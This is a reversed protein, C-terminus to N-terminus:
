KDGIKKTGIMKGYKEEIAEYMNGVKKLSLIEKDYLKTYGKDSDHDDHCRFGGKFWWLELCNWPYKKDPYIKQSADLSCVLITCSCSHVFKGEPNDYLDGCQIPMSDIIDM